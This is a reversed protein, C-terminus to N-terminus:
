PIAKPFGRLLHALRGRLQLLLRGVLRRLAPRPRGLRQPVRLTRQLGARGALPLAGGAVHLEFRAFEGLRLSLQRGLRPFERLRLTPRRGVLTATLKRPLLSADGIAHRRELPLHTLEGAAGIGHAIREALGRALQLPALRALLQLARCPLQALSARRLAGVDRFLLAIRGAHEIAHRREGPLGAPPAAALRLRQGLPQRVRAIEAIPQLRELIADGRQRLLGLAVRTARAALTALLALRAALVARTSM